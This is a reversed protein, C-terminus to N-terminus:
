LYIYMNYVICVNSVEEIAAVIMETDIFPVLNPEVNVERGSGGDDVHAM